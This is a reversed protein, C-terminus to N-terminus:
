DIFDDTTSLTATAALAKSAEARADAMSGMGEVGPQRPKTTSPTPRVSSSLLKTAPLVSTSM